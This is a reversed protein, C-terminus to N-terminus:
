FEDSIRFTLREEVTQIKGAEDIEIEGEYVGPDVDLTTAGWTLLLKGDTGGDVKSLTLTELVTSSGRKRFKMTVSTTGASLDIGDWTDPDAPDGTNADKLTVNLDPGDDGKTLRITSM